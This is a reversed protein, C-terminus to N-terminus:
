KKVNQLQIMSATLSHLLIGGAVAVNLSEMSGGFGPISISHTIYSQISDSMGHAESGLILIWGKELDIQLNYQSKERMNSGLIANGDKKYREFLKNHPYTMLHQLYFHAGMASRLVKSSLPDVCGPSLFVSNIGFWVATRLLTGMNGPDSINDFYLSQRPIDKLAKYEPLSMVAIIGQSNQSDCIRVISKQFVTEFLINKETLIQTLEKGLTSKAYNETMWAQKIDAEAILAQLILRHGELLIEEEQQRYKKQHLSKLRKIQSQSLL